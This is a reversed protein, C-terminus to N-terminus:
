VAHRYNQSVAPGHKSSRANPRITQRPARDTLRLGPRRSGYRIKMASGCKQGPIIVNPRQSSKFHKRTVQERAPRKAPTQCSLKFSSASSKHLELNSAPATSPVPSRPPSMPQSTLATLSGRLIAAKRSFTRTQVCVLRQDFTELYVAFEAFTPNMGQEENTYTTQSSAENPQSSLGWRLAVCRLMCDVLRGLLHPLPSFMRILISAEPM